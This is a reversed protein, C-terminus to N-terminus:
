NEILANLAEAIHDRADSNDDNLSQLVNALITSAQTSVPEQTPTNDTITSIDEDTATVVNANTEQKALWRKRIGCESTPWLHWHCGGKHNPADCFHWVRKNWTKTDGVKYAVNDKTKTHKRFSPQKFSTRKKNDDNDNGTKLKKIDDQKENSNSKRKVSAVMSVIDDHLTALSGDFGSKQSIKIYKIAATNMLNQCNTITGDDFNDMQTTVWRSWTEPQQIREYAALTHQIKEQETLKRNRTTALVFLHSLKTNMLPINFKFTSPDCHVINNFASVALQISATSTYKTLDLFLQVGDEHTTGTTMQSFVIIKLNGFISGKICHYMARANQQARDDTRAIRAAQVESDTISHYSELIDKNNISTIGHPAAADWKGERARVQLSILFSVFNETTGDWKEDLPQSIANFANLGTRTSLDFADNTAYLNTVPPTTTASPQFASIASALANMANALATNSATGSAM